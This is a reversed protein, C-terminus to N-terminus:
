IDSYLTACNRGKEKSAYLAKDSAEIIQDATSADHPYTAIGISITIPPNSKRQVTERLREAITYAKVSPTSPLLIIFEDGGFRGSLDGQRFSTRIFNAVSKICLDGTQHGHNDNIKKFCDIDFMLVSLSERPSREIMNYLRDLIAAKTMLGTMSDTKSKELLRRNSREIEEVRRIVESQISINMKKLSDAKREYDKFFFGLSNKYLYVFCCIYGIFLLLLVEVGIQSSYTWPVMAFAMVFLGAYGPAQSKDKHFLTNILLVLNLLLFSLVFITFVLSLKQYTGTFSLYIGLGLFLFPSFYFFGLASSKPVQLMVLSCNLLLMIHSIILLVFADHNNYTASMFAMISLVLPIIFGMAFARTKKPQIRIVLAGIFFFFTFSITLILFVQNEVSLFLM